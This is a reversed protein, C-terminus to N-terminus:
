LEDHEEHTSGESSTNEEIGSLYGNIEDESNEWDNKDMEAKIEALSSKM